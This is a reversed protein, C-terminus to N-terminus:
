FENFQMVKTFNLNKMENIVGINTKKPKKLTYMSNKAGHAIKPFNTM